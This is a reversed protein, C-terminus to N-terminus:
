GTPVDGRGVVVEAIGGGGEGFLARRRVKVTPTTSSESEWCRAAEARVCTARDWRAPKSATTREATQLRPRVFGGALTTRPIRL